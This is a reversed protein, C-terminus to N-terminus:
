SCGLEVVVPPPPSCCTCPASLWLKMQWLAAGCSRDPSTPSSVPRWVPSSALLWTPSIPLSWMGAVRVDGTDEQNRLPYIFTQGTFGTGRSVARPADRVVTGPAALLSEPSCAVSHSAVCADRASNSVSSTMGCAHLVICFRPHWSCSM